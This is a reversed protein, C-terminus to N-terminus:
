YNPYVKEAKLSVNKDRKITSVGVSVTFKKHYNKKHNEVNKGSPNARFLTWLFEVIFTSIVEPM